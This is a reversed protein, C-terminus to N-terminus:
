NKTDTSWLLCITDLLDWLLPVIFHSAFLMAVGQYWNFYVVVLGIVYQVM